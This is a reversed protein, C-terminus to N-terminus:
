NQEAPLLEFTLRAGIQPTQTPLYVGTAPVVEDFMLEDIRGTEAMDEIGRSALEGLEWFSVASNHTAGGILSLHADDPFDQPFDEVGWLNELTVRYRINDALVPIEELEDPTTSDTLQDDIETLQDDLLLTRNVPDALVPDVDSGGGCASLILSTTAVVLFPSKTNM